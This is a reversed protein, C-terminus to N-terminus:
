LGCASDIVQVLHVSLGLSELMCITYHSLCRTLGLLALSVIHQAIHAIHMAHLSCYLPLLCNFLQISMCRTLHTAFAHQWHVDDRESVRHCARCWSSAVDSWSNCHQLGHFIKAAASLASLWLLPTCQHGGKFKNRGNHAIRWHNRDDAQWSCVWCNARCWLWATCTTHLGHMTHVVASWCRKTISSLISLIFTCQLQRCARAIDVQSSSAHNDPLWIKHRWM